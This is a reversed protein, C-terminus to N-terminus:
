DRLMKGDGPNGEFVSKEGYGKIQKIRKSIRVINYDKRLKKPLSEQSPKSQTEKLKRKLETKLEDFLPIPKKSILKVIHWGFDSEFPQSYDNIKKLDFSADEFRFWKVLELHLCNVM